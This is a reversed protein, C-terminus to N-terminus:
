MIINGIAVQAVATLRAEALSKLMEANANKKRKASKAYVKRRLRVLPQRLPQKLRASKANQRVSKKASRPQQWANPASKQPKM